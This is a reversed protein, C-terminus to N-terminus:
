QRNPLLFHTFSHPSTVCDQELPMEKLHTTIGRHIECLKDCAAIHNELIRCSCEVDARAHRHLTSRETMASNNCLMTSWRPKMFHPRSECIAFWKVKAHVENHHFTVTTIPTSLPPASSSLATNDESRSIVRGQRTRAREGPIDATIANRECSWYRVFITVRRSSFRSM